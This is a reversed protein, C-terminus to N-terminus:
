RAGETSTGPVTTLRLSARRADSSSAFSLQIASTPVSTDSPSVTARSSTIVNRKYSICASLRTTFSFARTVNRCDSFPRSCCSASFFRDAFLWSSWTMELRATASLSTHIASACSPSALTAICTVWIRAGNSPMTVSFNRLMPSRRFTASSTMRSTSGFDISTTARAGRLVTLKM